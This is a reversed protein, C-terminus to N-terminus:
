EGDRGLLRCVQCVEGSTLEGCIRCTSLAKAPEASRASRRVGDRFRMLRLMTGPHRHELGALMTRVESRLATGAYPCEPLDRFYGRLLLYTVIEKESLVALPKIRPVFHGPQGTSTDQLLRPLDGRLVNMLVSQAEDDLNHGTALKTAGTRKVAEGLARRRLVGCVTCGQAERGVLMADLDKGFLDAFTVIAHEVGLEGTLDRAARLTEERYGAIGEDITIAVLSAGLTPLIPHLLLLLATSDKGGSLGVAVRDGPSIMRDHKMAVLVRTEADEIFHGACLRREPETLRVVAPEGCLSCRNEASTM